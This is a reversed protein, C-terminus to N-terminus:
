QAGLVYKVTRARRVPEVGGLLWHGGMAASDAEWRHVWAGDRGEADRRTRYLEGWRLDRTRGGCSPQISPMGYAHYRLLCLAPFPTSARLSQARMRRRLLSSRLIMRSASARAALGPAIRARVARKSTNLNLYREFICECVPAFRVSDLSSWYYAPHSM